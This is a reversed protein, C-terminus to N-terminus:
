KKAAYQELILGTPQLLHAYPYVTYKAKGDTNVLVTCHPRQTSDDVVVVVVGGRKLVTNGTIGVYDEKLFCVAGQVIGLAQCPTANIKEMSSLWEYWGESGDLTEFFPCGSKDDRKLTVLTGVLFTSTNGQVVFTDGVAYGLKAAPSLDSDEEEPAEPAEYLRELVVDDGLVLYYQDEPNDVSEFPPCPSGDDRALTVITGQEFAGDEETVVCRVGKVYGGLEAPSCEAKPKVTNLRLYLTDCPLPVVFEPMNSDDDHKLTVIDGAHLGWQPTASVFVCETGVFIGAAAAPTLVEPAPKYPRTDRLLYYRRQGTREVLFRPTQTGDDYVLELVDGVRVEDSDSRPRGAVVKSGVKLGLKEAPTKLEEEEKIKPKAPYASSYEAQADVVAAWDELEELDIAVAGADPYPKVGVDGHWVKGDFQLWGCDIEDLGIDSDAFDEGNLWKGLSQLAPSKKLRNRDQRSCRTYFVRPLSTSVRYVGDVIDVHQTRGDCLRVFLPSSSGDLEVLQVVAGAEFSHYCGADNETIIGYDGLSWGAQVATDEANNTYTM